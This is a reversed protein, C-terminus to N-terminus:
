DKNKIVGLKELTEFVQQKGKHGSTKQHRIVGGINSRMDCELCRWRQFTPNSPDNKKFPIGRGRHPTFNGQQERVLLKKKPKIKSQIPLVVDEIFDDFELGISEAVDRPMSPLEFMKRLEEHQNM